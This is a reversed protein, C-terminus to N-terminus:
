GGLGLRFPPLMAKLAGGRATLVVGFRLHVVRVGAKLAPATAAEWHQAVQALFDSGPPSEETLIEDGRPGYFGVASATVLIQPRPQAAAIAEALTRTRDVRSTLIHRKKAKTWRGMISEGALHVVADCHSLQNPNPEATWPIEHAAGTPRRTLVYVEHAASALVPLLSRGILGSAGTIAIRM